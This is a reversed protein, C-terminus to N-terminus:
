PKVLDVAVPWHDSAGGGKKKAADYEFLRPILTGDKRNLALQEVDNQVTGFTRMDLRWPAAGPRQAIVDLFSWTGEKKYFHSGHYRCGNDTQPPLAWGALVERMTKQEDAACNFNFDGAAIVVGDPAAAALKVLTSLAIRRCVQPNLGSPLHAGFVTLNAGDPLTLTVSLLDRTAEPAGSEDKCAADVSLDVPHFATATGGAVPLKSLMALRIGRPDPKPVPRTPDSDFFVTTQYAGANPLAAKLAALAAASEIESLVLIDPGKNEDFRGIVRALAAAKAKVWDETEITEGGRGNRLRPDDAADFFNGLNYTMITIREACAPASLAMLVALITLRKM